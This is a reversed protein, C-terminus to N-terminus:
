PGRPRDIWASPLCSDADPLGDGPPPASDGGHAKWPRGPRIPLVPFRFCSRAQVASQGSASAAQGPKMAQAPFDAPLFSVGFAPPHKMRRRKEKGGRARDAASLACRAMGCPAFMGAFVKLGFAPFPVIHRSRFFPSSSGAPCRRFSFWAAAPFRRSLMASQWATGCFSGQKGKPPRRLHGQEARGPPM